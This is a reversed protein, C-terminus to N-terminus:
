NYIISFTVNSTVQGAGTVALGNAAYQAYYSMTATGPSMIGGTLTGGTLTQPVDAQTTAAAGIAIHNGNANLLEIELNAVNAAGVNTTKLRGTTLDVSNGAEFFTRVTDGAKYSCASLAITFPTSGAKATATNLASTSVAPLTVTGAAQTNAASATGGNISIACTNASITGNFTITGDSAFAQQSVMALGAVVCASLLKIKM